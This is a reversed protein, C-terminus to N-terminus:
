CVFFSSRFHLCIFFKAEASFSPPHVCYFKPNEIGFTILQEPSNWQIVDQIAKIIVGPLLESLYVNLSDRDHKWIKNENILCWKSIKNEEQQFSSKSSCM